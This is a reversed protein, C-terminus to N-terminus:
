SLLAGLVFRSASKFTVETLCGQVLHALETTTRLGLSVDASTLMQHFAGKSPSFAVAEVSGAPPAQPSHPNLLIQDAGQLVNRHQQPISAAGSVLCRHHSLLSFLSFLSDGIRQAPQPSCREIVKGPSAMMATYHTKDTRKGGRHDIQAVARQFM